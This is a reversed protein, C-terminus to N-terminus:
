KLGAEQMARSGFVVGSFATAAYILYPWIPGFEEEPLFSLGVLAINILVIFASLYVFPKLAGDHKAARIGIVGTVVQFVGAIAVIVSYMQAIPTADEISQDALPSGFFLLAALILAVIGLLFIFLGIGKVIRRNSSM